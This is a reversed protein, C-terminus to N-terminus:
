VDRRHEQGCDDGHAHCCQYFKSGVPRPNCTIRELEDAAAMLARALERAQSGTLSSHESGALGDTDLNLCRIVAGDELQLGSVVVEVGAVRRRSGTFERSWRGDADQDAAYIVAAGAPTGLHGFREATVVNREALERAEAVMWGREGPDPDHAEIKELQEVPQATLQDALDRWTATVNDTTNM